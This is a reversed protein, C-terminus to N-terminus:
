RSRAPWPDGWATDRAARYAERDRRTVVESAVTGDARCVELRVMGKRLVPHRLVRGPARTVPDRAALVFSLKEDEHGRAGGKLRRHLATRDLRAVLHCWDGDRSAVPCSGEQPCPALVHWGAEVLRDRAALVTAFGRPTGPEVVLVWGGAAAAAADVAVEPLGPGLEGLLYSITVLDAAPLEVGSRVRVPTWRAAAVPGPGHRAVRRGLALADASGDLVEVRELGPLVEAVAWAAGGTGGGVDVLSRVSSGLRADASLGLRLALSVAASTAPMRYAAYAAASVPDSLVQREPPAGSRYVEILRTTARRLAAPDEGALVADLARTLTPPV